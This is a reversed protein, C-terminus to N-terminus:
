LHAKYDFLFSLEEHQGLLRFKEILNDFYAKSSKLRANIKIQEKQLLPKRYRDNFENYNGSIVALYNQLNEFGNAQGFRFSLKNEKLIANYYLEKYRYNQVIPSAPPLIKNDKIIQENLVMALYYIEDSGYLINKVITKSNKEAVLNYPLHFKLFFNGDMVKDKLDRFGYILSQLELDKTHINYLPYPMDGGCIINKEKTKELFYCHLGIQPSYCFYNRCVSAFVGSDFFDIGDIDTIKLNFNHKKCFNESALIDNSNIVEDKWKLRYTIVDFEVGAEKLMLCVFQSDYGGSLAVSFGSYKQLSNVLKGHLTLDDKPPKFSLVYMLSDSDFKLATNQTNM